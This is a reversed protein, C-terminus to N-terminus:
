DELVLVRVAGEDDNLCVYGAQENVRVAFDTYSNGQLGVWEWLGRSNHSHRKYRDYTLYFTGDNRQKLTWM